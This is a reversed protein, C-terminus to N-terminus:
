ARYLRSERRSTCVDRDRCLVRCVRRQSVRRVVCSVQVADPTRELPLVCGEVECLGALFGADLTHAVVAM